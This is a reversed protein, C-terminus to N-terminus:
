LTCTLLTHAFGVVDVEEVVRLDAKEAFGIMEEATYMRSNGNAMVAFYLSTHVLSFTSAFFKQRDIFTELIYLKSSADMVERARKLVADIGEPDFCDLFQSMWIVDYGKPFSCGPDLFDCARCSIRDAYGASRLSSYAVDLQGQHDLITITVESDYAACMIAWKGTNGGVDLIKQPKPKGAFLKPLVESFARDSYFHDFAFWSKRVKEPLSKLAEYITKWRGGFGALGVPTGTYLAEDLHFMGQYCVDHMFDMNIKTMPDKVICYGIKTLRYRGDRNEVFGSVEAAEILLRVAYPSMVTTVSLDDLTCGTPGANEIRQLLGSERAVRATQFVAPAFCLFQAYEKAAAMSIGSSRDSRNMARRGGQFWLAGRLAQEQVPM